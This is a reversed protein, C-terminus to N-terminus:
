INIKKYNDLIMEDFFNKKVVKIIIKYKKINFFNKISFLRVDKSGFFRKEKKKERRKKIRM